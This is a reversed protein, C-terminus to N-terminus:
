RISIRHACVCRHDGAGAGPETGLECALQASEPHIKNENGSIPASEVRDRGLDAATAPNCHFYEQRIENVGLLTIGHDCAQRVKLVRHIHQDVVSAETKWQRELGIRDFILSPMQREMDFRDHTEGV